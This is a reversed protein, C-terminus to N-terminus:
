PNQKVRGNVGGVVNAAMRSSLITSQFLSVETEMSACRVVSIENKSHSLGAIVGTQNSRVVCPEGSGLAIMVPNENFVSYFYPGITCGIGYGNCTDIQGTPKSTPDM